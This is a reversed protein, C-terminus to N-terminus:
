LYFRRFLGISPANTVFADTIVFDRPLYDPPLRSFASSSDFRTAPPATPTAPLTTTPNRLLAEEKM